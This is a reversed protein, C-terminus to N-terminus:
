LPPLYKRTLEYGVYIAANAPFARVVTVHIGTFLGGIGSAAVIQRTTAAISLPAESTQITSKITDPAISAIWGVQGALRNM